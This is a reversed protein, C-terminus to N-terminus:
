IGYIFFLHFLLICPIVMHSLDTHAQLLSYQVVSALSIKSVPTRPPSGYSLPPSARRFNQKLGRFSVLRPTAWGKKVGLLFWKLSQKCSDLLYFSSFTYLKSINRRTCGQFLWKRSFKITNQGSCGIYSWFEFNVGWLSDVVLMGGRECPLAGRSIPSSTLPRLKVFCGKRWSFFFTPYDTTKLKRREKM